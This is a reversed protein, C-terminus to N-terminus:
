NRKKFKYEMVKNPFPDAKQFRRDIFGKALMQRYGGLGNENVGIFHVERGHFNPEGQAWSCLLTEKTKYNIMLFYEHIGNSAKM